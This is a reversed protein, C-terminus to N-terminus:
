GPLQKLAAILLPFYRAHKNVDTNQFRGSADASERLWRTGLGVMGTRWGPSGPRVKWRQRGSTCRGGWLDENVWTKLISSPM